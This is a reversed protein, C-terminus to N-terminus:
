LARVIKLTAYCSCTQDTSTRVYVSAATKTQVLPHASSTVNLVLALAFLARLFLLLLFFPLFLFEAQRLCTYALLEDCFTMRM